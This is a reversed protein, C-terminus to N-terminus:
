GIETIRVYNEVTKFPLVNSQTHYLRLITHITITLPLMEKTKAKGPEDLRVGVYIRSNYKQELPGRYKM